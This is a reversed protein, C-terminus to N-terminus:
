IFKKAQSYKDNYKGRDVVELYWWMPQIYVNYGKDRVRKTGQVEFTWPTDNPKINDVLFDRKFISAQLSTLYKSRDSMKIMGCHKEDILTYHKAIRDLILHDVNFNKCCELNYELTDSDFPKILFYDDQLWLIYPTDIQELAKLVHKGWTTTGTNITPIYPHKKTESLLFVDIDPLFYKSFARYFEDWLFSYKDCSGILVTIQNKINM